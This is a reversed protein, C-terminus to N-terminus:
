WMVEPLWDTVLMERLRTDNVLIRPPLAPDTAREFAFDDMVGDRVVFWGQQKSGARMTPFAALSDPIAATGLPDVLRRKIAAALPFFVCWRWTAAAVDGATPEEEWFGDAIWVLEGLKPDRHTFLGLAFGRDCVVTFASGTLLRGSM